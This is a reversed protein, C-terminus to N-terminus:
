ISHTWMYGASNQGLVCGEAGNAAINKGEVFGMAEAHTRGEMDELRVGAKLFESAWRVMTDQEDKSYHLTNKKIRETRVESRRSPLWVDSLRFKRNSGTWSSETFKVVLANNFLESYVPGLHVLTDLQSLTSPPAGLLEFARFDVALLTLNPLQQFFEGYTVRCDSEGSGYLGLSRIQHGFQNLFARSKLIDVTRGYVHRLVPLRLRSPVKLIEHSISPLDLIELFPMSCDTGGLSLSPSTTASVALTSLGVTNTQRGVSLSLAKLRTLRKSIDCLMLPQLEWDIHISLTVLNPLHRKAMDVFGRTPQSFNELYIHLSRIHVGQLGIMMQMANLSCDECDLVAIPSRPFSVTLGIARPSVRHVWRLNHLIHANWRKCVLRLRTRCRTLRRWQHLDFDNIRRLHYVAHFPSTFDFVSPYTLSFMSAFIEDWLEVPIKNTLSAAM